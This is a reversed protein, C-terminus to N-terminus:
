ISALLNLDVRGITGAARFRKFLRASSPMASRLPCVMFPIRQVTLISGPETNKYGPGTGPRNVHAQGSCSPNLKAAQPSTNPSEVRGHM